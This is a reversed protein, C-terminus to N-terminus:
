SVSQLLTVSEKSKAEANNMNLCCNHNSRNQGNIIIAQSKKPNENMNDDSFSKIAVESQKTLM